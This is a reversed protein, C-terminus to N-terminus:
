PTTKDSYSTWITTKVTGLQLNVSNKKKIDENELYKVLM